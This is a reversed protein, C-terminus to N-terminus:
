FYHGPRSCPTDSTGTSTMDGHDRRRPEWASMRTPASPFSSHTAPSRPPGHSMSKSEGLGRSMGKGSSSRGYRLAVAKPGTEVTLQAAVSNSSKAFAHALTVPGDYRAEYNGPHWRGFSVPTDKVMDNPTHGHELATLYVFPKFASGPQRKADTARNYPSLGYSRGGVMARVAGDPSLLVLAAEHAHFKQGERALGEEIAREAKEQLSLDFTTEVM